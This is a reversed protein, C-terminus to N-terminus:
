QAMCGAQRRREDDDYAMWEYSAPRPVAAQHRRTITADIGPMNIDSLVAAFTPQFEGTFQDLAEPGATPLALMLLTPNM